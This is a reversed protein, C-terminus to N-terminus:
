CFLNSYNNKNLIYRFSKYMKEEGKMDAVLVGALEDGIYASIVQTANTLELYWFYKGYLNLETKNDLYM